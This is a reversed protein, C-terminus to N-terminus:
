LLKPSLLSIVCEFLQNKRYYNMGIENMDVEIDELRDMLKKDSENPPNLVMHYIDGTTPDRKRDGAREKIKDESVNLRLIIDLLVLFDSVSCPAWLKDAKACFETSIFL